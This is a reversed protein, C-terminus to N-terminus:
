SYDAYRAIAPLILIDAKGHRRSEESDKDGLLKNKMIHLHRVSEMGEKHTKGIGLIWDAEGQKATKSSDVDDMTLYAKGEGSAGAQCIGIVPGYLKALERAWQYVAKMELDYRDNDFGKVKDIQDFVILSPNINKCLREVEKRHTFPMDCMRIRGGMKKMYEITYKDWHQQLEKLSKGFYAEYCRLKVKGGKEENNIWLIPREAQEAMFTMESALFTTKGSEPRAFVFGFDGPRLPGLMKNLTGLRWHLGGETVHSRLLEGLDDTVFDDATEVEGKSEYSRVLEQLQEYTAKGEAVRLGLVALEHARTREVHQQLYNEALEPNLDVKTLNECLKQLLQKEGTPMAPYLTLVLLHLDEPTLAKPSAQSRAHHDGVADFVQRLLRNSDNISDLNVFRSYRSHLDPSLFLKLLYLEVSDVM